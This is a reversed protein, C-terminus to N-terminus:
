RGIRHLWGLGELTGARPRYECGIWGDYGRRDLEAFLWRWNIENDGDPEHRGPVGAVQVHGLYPWQDDLAGALRGETMQCHYFDLQIRVNDAGAAALLRRAQAQGTLFYGPMDVPNIPEILITVGFRAAEAAAYRLNALYVAECEAPDAEESIVGAMMHLRRCGLAAAYDLAAGVGARHDAERGPLAALGREGAAWDGAPLNFLVQELAADDLRARLESAPHDYPFLYEVGSFGANAAAGFREVFSLETFMMSLNAAFRPM